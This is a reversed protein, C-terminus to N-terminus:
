ENDLGIVSLNKLRGNILFAADLIKFTYITCHVQAQVDHWEPEYKWTLSNMICHHIFDFWYELSVTSFAKKFVRYPNVFEKKSLHHLEVGQFLQNRESSAADDSQMIQCSLATDNWLKREFIRYSAMVLGAFQHYQWLCCGPDKRIWGAKKHSSASQLMELMEKRIDVYSQNMMYHAITEFPDDSLAEIFLADTLFNLVM